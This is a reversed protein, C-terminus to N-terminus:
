LAENLDIIIRESDFDVGFLDPQAQGQHGPNIDATTRCPVPPASFSWEVVKQHQKCIQGLAMEEIYWGGPVNSFYILFYNSPCQLVQPLPLQSM